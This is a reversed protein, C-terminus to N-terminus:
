RRRAIFLSDIQKSCGNDMVIAGDSISFAKDEKTGDTFLIIGEYCGPPPLLQSVQERSFTIKGGVKSPETLLDIRYHDGSFRSYSELDGDKILKRLLTSSIKEGKESLVFEVQDLEVEYGLSHFIEVMKAGDACERPNGCRFDSGLVLIEPKCLETIAKAFGCASIKSFKESFDIVTFSNISFSRVYEERLRLTDLSGQEANKPNTNFTICMSEMGPHSKCVSKLTEFIRKHGRHVGDFVGIAIAMATDKKEKSERLKDFDYIKM